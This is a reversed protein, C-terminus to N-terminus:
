APANDGERRKRRLLKIQLPILHRKPGAVDNRSLPKRCVPCTGKPAKNTSDSREESFKITDIICKHCFLHGCVTSTADVPTDMCVPCKYAAFSSENDKHELSQQALIADARQKAQTRSVESVDDLETLDVSDVESTQSDPQSLPALRRRKPNPFLTPYDSQSASTSEPSYRPTDM